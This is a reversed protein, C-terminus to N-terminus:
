EVYRVEEMNTLAALPVMQEGSLWTLCTLVMELDKKDTVSFSKEFSDSPMRYTVRDAM